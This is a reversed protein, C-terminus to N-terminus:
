GRLLRLLVVAAIAGAVVVLVQVLVALALMRLWCLLLYALVGGLTAVVVYLLVSPLPAGALRGAMVGILLSVFVIWWLAGRLRVVCAGGDAAQTPFASSPQELVKEGLVGIEISPDTGEPHRFGIRYSGDLQDTLPTTASCTPCSVVLAGVYGPGLRNGLTDRPTLELMVDTFGGATSKSVIGITSTSPDPKPRVFVSLRRHRQFAGNTAATGRVNIAFQYHGEEVTEGFVGSYSGGGQDTFVVDPLPVDQFLHRHEASQLLDRLKQQAADNAGTDVLPSTGTFTPADSLVDGLGQEPGVLYAVVTAGEIPSGAEKLTVALEISEGTGADATRSGFASVISRNDLIVMLHFDLTAAQMDQGSLELTWTGAPDVVAGAARVPLRLTTFSRNRGTRTRSSVDIPTGDPAKLTFSLFDREKQGTWSLLISMAVDEPNALFTVSEAGGQALDGRRDLAVELKDGIVADGLAQVFFTELDALVFSEQDDRVHANQGSCAADAIAQQLAFGPATSRGATVPCVGIDSPYGTGDLKVAGGAVSVQIGTNQEGDSFLLVLRRPNPTSDNAFGLENAKQLGDGISTSGSPVKAALSAQLQGLIAGDKASRLNSPNADPPSPELPTASSSFYVLGVKDGLMSWDLLGQFFGESAHRLADMRSTGGGPVAPWAMSGSTDFVLELSANPRPAAAGTQFHVVNPDGSQLTGQNAKAGAVSFEVPQSAAFTGNYLIQVTDQEMDGDFGDIVSFRCQDAPVPVSPPAASCAISSAPTPKLTVSASSLDLPFGAGNEALTSDFFKFHFELGKRGANRDTGTEGDTPSSGLPDPFLTQADAQSGHGLALALALIFGYPHARRTTSM